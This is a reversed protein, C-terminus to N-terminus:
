KSHEEGVEKIAFLRFALKPFRYTIKQSLDSIRMWLFIPPYKVSGKYGRLKKWGDIGFVKFGLKRLEEVSWASKHEQLPNGDYADQCLQGNPTTVIVKKRAWETMRSILEHGEEKTLHELVEIAVVADFSKPRFELKAIDAKIYQTHVAKRKSEQLYPEFLEVGVSFPVNCRDIPSFYGCGLDLVSDCGSLERKLTATSDPFVRLYLPGLFDSLIRRVIATWSIEGMWTYIRKYDRRHKVYLRREYKLLDKFEWLQYHARLCCHSSRAPIVYAKLGLQRISLCYDAGYCHWGDFTKEDFRLKRFVSKPVVLLCEDLTQVEEPKQVPLGGPVPEGFEEISWRRRESNNGGKESMGAVGAVGLDPISELIREVDELWSNSGLWMDQHAFMIYEGRAREGGCNFAAAASRYRNDRNDLTILEYRVTQRELSKLLVDKLTREKNYVCVVSIM